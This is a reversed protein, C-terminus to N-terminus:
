SKRRSRWAEILEPGVFIAAMFAFFAVTVVATLTNDSM